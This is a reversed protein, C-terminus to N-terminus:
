YPISPNYYNVPYFDHNGLVPIVPTEPFYEKILSSLNGIVDITEQYNTHHVDHAISDGTWIIMDIQQGWDNRLTEM